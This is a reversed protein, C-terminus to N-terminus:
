RFPLSTSSAITKDIDDDTGFQLVGKASPKEPNTVDITHLQGYVTGVIAYQREGILAMDVDDPALLPFDTSNEMRAVVRLFNPDTVDVIEVAAAYDNSHLPSVSLVAYHRGDAQFTAVGSFRKQLVYQSDAVPVIDLGVPEAFVLRVDIETGPGYDGDPKDSTVQVPVAADSVIPYVSSLTYAYVKDESDGVVFMKTGDNSFAMGTPTQDQGSIDFSYTHTAASVNFPTPLTYEHIADEMDGVVFMKAGDNSFAMGQPQTDQSRVPLSRTHKVASIDFPATLNYEHIFGKAFGVIFMKTGDNSFAM